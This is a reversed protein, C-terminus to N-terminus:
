VRPVEDEIIRPLSRPNGTHPADTQGGVVVMADGYSYFRYGEVVAHRYAAMTTDYEDKLAMRLSERVGVEDDVILVRRRFKLTNEM